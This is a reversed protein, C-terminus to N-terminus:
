DNRLGPHTGEGFPTDGLNPKGPVLVQLITM